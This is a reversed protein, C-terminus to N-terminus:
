RIMTNDDKGYSVTELKFELKLFKELLVRLIVGTKVLINMGKAEQFWKVLGTLKLLGIFLSGINDNHNEHSVFHEM